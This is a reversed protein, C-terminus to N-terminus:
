ASWDTVWHVWSLGASQAANALRRDATWLPANERSALALYQADYAKSQGLAEALALAEEHIPKTPPITVLGSNLLRSLVPLMQAREIQKSLVSRRILSTIEYEFLTPAILREGSRRWYNMLSIAQASYSVPLVLAAVINSDVVITM